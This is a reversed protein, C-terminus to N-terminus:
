FDCTPEFARFLFVVQGFRATGLPLDSYNESMGTLRLMTYMPEFYGNWVEHMKSNMEISFSSKKQLKKLLIWFACGFSV